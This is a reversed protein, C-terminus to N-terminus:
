LLKLHSTKYISTSAGAYSGYMCPVLRLTPYMCSVLRLTPYPEYVSTSTSDVLGLGYIFATHM